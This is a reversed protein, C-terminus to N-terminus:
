RPQERRPNRPSRARRGCCGPMLFSDETWQGSRYAGLVEEVRGCTQPVVDVEGSLLVEELPRSVAGCILVDVRWDIVARARAELSTDALTRETREVELGDEVDVLLLRGAVDFM